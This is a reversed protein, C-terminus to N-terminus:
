SESELEQVEPSDTILNTGLQAIFRHVHSQNQCHVQLGLTIMWACFASLSNYGEAQAIAELSEYTGVPIFARVEILTPRKQKRKDRKDQM